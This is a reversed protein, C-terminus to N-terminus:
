EIENSVLKEKEAVDSKLIFFGNGIKSPTTRNYFKLVIFLGAFSSLVVFLFLTWVNFIQSSNKIQYNQQNEQENNKPEVLNYYQAQQSEDIKKDVLFQEICNNDTDQPYFFKLLYLKSPCKIAILESFHSFTKLANSKCFAKPIKGLNCKKFSSLKTVSSCLFSKANPISSINNYIQNCNKIKFLKLSDIYEDFVKVNEFSKDDIYYESYEPCVKTDQLSICKSYIFPFILLIIM